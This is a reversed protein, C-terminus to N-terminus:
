PQQPMRITTPPPGDPDAHPAAPCGSVALGLLVAALALGLLRRM